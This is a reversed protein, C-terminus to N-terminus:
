ECSNRPFWRIRLRDLVANQGKRPTVFRVGGHESPTIRTLRRGFRLHVSRDWNRLKLASACGVTPDINNRQLYGNVLGSNIQSFV